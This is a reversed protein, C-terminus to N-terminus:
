VVVAAGVASDVLLFVVHRRINDHPSGVVLVAVGEVGAAGGAVVDEAAVEARVLVAVDHPGIPVPAVVRGADPTLADAPPRRRRPRLRVSVHPCRVLVPRAAVVVLLVRLAGVAAVVHVVEGLGAVLLCEATSLDPDTRGILLKLLISFVITLISGLAVSHSGHPM